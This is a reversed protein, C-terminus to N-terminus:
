KSKSLIWRKFKPMILSMAHLGILEKWREQECLFRRRGPQVLAMVSATMVAVIMNLLFIAVMIFFVVLVVQTNVNERHLEFSGPNAALMFTSYLADPFTEYGEMVQPLCPRSRMLYHFTSAVALQIVFFVCYFEALHQIMRKTTIVFLGIGPLLRMSYVTIVCRLVLCSVLMYSSRDVYTAVASEAEDTINLHGKVWIEELYGVSNFDNVPGTYLSTNSASDNYRSDEYLGPNKLKILFPLNDRMYVILAKIQQAYDISYIMFGIFFAYMFISLQRETYSGPLRYLWASKASGQRLVYHVRYVIDLLLNGLALLLCLVGVLDFFIVKDLVTGITIEEELLVAGSAIYMDDDTIGFGEDQGPGTCNAKMDSLKHSLWAKMVEWNCSHKGSLIDDTCQRYLRGTSNEDIFHPMNGAYLRSYVFLSPYPDNDRGSDIMAWIVVITFMTQLLHYLVSWSWLWRVTRGTLLSLSRCNRASETDVTDFEVVDRNSLFHLVNSDVNTQDRVWNPDDAVIRTATEDAAARQKELDLGAALLTASEPTEPTTQKIDQKEQPETVLLSLKSMDNILETCLRLAGYLACQEAPCLGQKNKAQLLNKMVTKGEGEKLADRLSRYGHLATTPDEASILSLHHLVNNLDADTQSYEAGHTILVTVVDLRGRLVASFLPVPYQRSSGRLQWHRCFSAILGHIVYFVPTLIVFIITTIILSIVRFYGCCRANTLSTAHKNEPNQLGLIWKRANSELRQMVNDVNNTEGDEILQYFLPCGERSKKDRVAEHSIENVIRSASAGDMRDGTM